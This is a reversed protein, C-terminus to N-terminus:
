EQEIYLRYYRNSQVTDVPVNFLLASGNGSKAPPVNTWVPPLLTESSQLRYLHGVVSNSVTLALNTGSEIVSNDFIYEDETIPISGATITALTM